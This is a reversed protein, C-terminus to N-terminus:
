VVSKRDAGPVACSAPGIKFVQTTESDGFALDVEEMAAERPRALGLGPAAVFCDALRTSRDEARHVLMFGGSGPGTLPSEAVAAAFAAAVCADVANGGAELVQAGAQVTLPHGAAVAGNM